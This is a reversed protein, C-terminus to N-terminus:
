FANTDVFSTLQGQPNAHSWVTGTTTDTIELTYEVNTLQGGFIWFKGNVARGDLVKVVLELNQSSFFWFSGADRTLPLIQGAGEADVTHWSVRAAFRGDGLCLTSADPVCSEAGRAMTLRFLGGCASAYVTRHDLPDFALSSPSGIFGGGYAEWTVGGDLTRSVGGTGGVVVVGPAAADALLLGAGLPPPGGAFSWHAGDDASKWLGNTYLVPPDSGDFALDGSGEPMPATPPQFTRGGDVSTWIGGTSIALVRDGASPDVAVRGVSAGDPFGFCHAWTRGYDATKCVLEGRRVFLFDKGVVYLTGPRRPDVTISRLARAYGADAGKVWNQGGDESRYLGGVPYGVTYVIKPDGPDFAIDGMFLSNPFGHFDWTLGGDSSRYIGASGEGFVKPRLTALIRSPNRPDVAILEILEGPPGISTWENM